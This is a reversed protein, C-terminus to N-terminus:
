KELFYGIEVNQKEFFCGIEGSSSNLIESGKGRPSLAMVNKSTPMDPLGRMPSIPFPTGQKELQAGWRRVQKVM